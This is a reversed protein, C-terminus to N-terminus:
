VKISEHFKKMAKVKEQADKHVQLDIPLSTLEIPTLPNLGYVVEFPSHGTTVSPARNYAFEVHPLNLDWDRLHRNVM